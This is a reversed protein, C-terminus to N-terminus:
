SKTRLILYDTTNNGNRDTLSLKICFDLSKNGSYEDVIWDSYTIGSGNIIGTSTGTFVGTTYDYSVVLVNFNHNLDYRIHATDGSIWYLNTGGTFTLTEGSISPITITNYTKTYYPDIINDLLNARNDIKYFDIDYESLSIDIEDSVYDIIYNMVDLNTIGTTRGSAVMTFGSLIDFESTITIGSFNVTNGTIGSNVIGYKYHIIPPISDVYIYNITAGTSNNANDTYTYSIEYLGDETIETLNESSGSKTLYATCGTIDLNGDWYDTVGSIFHELIQIKTYYGLTSGTPTITTGSNGYYYIIPEQVDIGTKGSNNEFIYNETLFRNDFDDMVWSIRSFAQYFDFETLFNFEYIQTNTIATLTLSYLDKIINTIGTYPISISETIGTLVLSTSGTNTGSIIQDSIIDELYLNQYNTIGSSTTITTKELVAGFVDLVVDFNNPNNFYIQPIKNGYSGSQIFFSNIPQVDDTAGSFYYTINKTIDYSYYPNDETDKRVRVLLFSLKGEVGDFYLPIDKKSSALVQRSIYFDSYAIAIDNLSLFDIINPGNVSIFDREWPKINKETPKLFHNPRIQM